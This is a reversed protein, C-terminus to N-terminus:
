ELIFGAKRAFATRLVIGLQPKKSFPIENMSRQKGGVVSTEIYGAEKLAEVIRQFPILSAQLITYSVAIGESTRLFEQATQSKNWTDRWAAIERCAPQGLEVLLSKDFAAEIDDSADPVSPIGGKATKIPKDKAVAQGSDNSPKNPATTPLTNGDKTEANEFLIEGTEAVVPRGNNLGAIAPADAAPPKAVDKVTIVPVATEPAKSVASKQPIVRLSDTSPKVELHGLISAPAAIKIAPIPSGNGLSPRILHVWSGDAAVSIIGARGMMEELTERSTPVGVIKQEALHGLMEQAGTRWAVYFGDSGYHCRSVKGNVQWVGNRLLTRMADLFYPELHSGNTLKGYTTPAIDHDKEIVRRRVENILAALSSNDATSIAGSAVGFIAEVIAPKVAHIDSLIENGVVVNVAWSSLSNAVGRVDDKQHWRIYYRDVGQKRAWGGLTDVYPSWQNGKSDVILMETLPRFLECTLGTLFAAHNWALETQRRREIGEGAAFIRGGASKSCRVALTLSFRFLGGAGTHHKDRTAPILNIFEAARRIPGLYNKEFLENSIGLNKRLSVILDGQSAIVEEATAVRIGNDIPPYRPTGHDDGSEPSVVQLNVPSVGRFVPAKSSSVAAVPASKNGFLRSLIAQIQM